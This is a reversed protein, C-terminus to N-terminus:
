LLGVRMKDGASLKKGYLDKAKIADFPKVTFVLTQNDRMYGYVELKFANGFDIKVGGAALDPDVSEPLKVLNAADSEEANRSFLETLKVTIASIYANANQILAKPINTAVYVGETLGFTQSDSTLSLISYRFSSSERIPFSVFEGSFKLTGEVNQRIADHWKEPPLLEPSNTPRETM